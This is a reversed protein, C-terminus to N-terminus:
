LSVSSKVESQFGRGPRGPLHPPRNMQSDLPSGDVSHNEHRANLDIEEKILAFNIVALLLLQVFGTTLHSKGNMILVPLAM